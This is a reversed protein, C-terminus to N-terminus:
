IKELFGLDVAKPLNLTPFKPSSPCYPFTVPFVHGSDMMLKSPDARDAGREVVARIVAAPIREEYDDPSYMTLIKQIQLPNLKQCTEYIVDVDQLRTKNVQLLKTIEISEVLAESVGDINNTRAWEEVKTLNYRVQMGKSWHCFDKRLLLNNVMTSNIFYFVQHFIQRILKPEVFHHILVELANQLVNLITAVSVTPVPSTSGDAGGEGGAGAGAGGLNFRANKQKLPTSSGVGNISEYELLAPVILPSVQYEIHKVVTQYINVLLDSMVMRYEQLDFHCLSRSMTDDQTKFQPDSGFQKMNTLLRFTNSMWFAVVSLDTTNRMVVEKISGMTKILLSQLMGGNQVYDAYVICMFLVHAPLGPLEKEMEQPRLNQVLANVIKQVDKEAFQM